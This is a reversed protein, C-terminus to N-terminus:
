PSGLGSAATPKLPQNAPKRSADIRAVAKRRFREFQAFGVAVLMAVTFVCKGDVVKASVSLAYALYICWCGILADLLIDIAQWNRVAAKALTNAVLVLKKILWSAIEKFAAGVLAAIAYRILTDNDM